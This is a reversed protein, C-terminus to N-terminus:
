NAWIQNHEHYTGISIKMKLRKLMQNPNAQVALAVQVAQVVLEQDLIDEQLNLSMKEKSDM